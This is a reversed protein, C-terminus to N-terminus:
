FELFEPMAIGQCLNHNIIVSHFMILYISLESIYKQSASFESFEKIAIGLVFKSQNVRLPLKHCLYKM